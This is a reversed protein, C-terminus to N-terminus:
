DRDASLMKGSSTLRDRSKSFIMTKKIINLESDLRKVETNELTKL